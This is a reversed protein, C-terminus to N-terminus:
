LEPTDPYYGATLVDSDDTFVFKHDRAAQFEMEIASVGAFIILTLALTLKSRSLNM